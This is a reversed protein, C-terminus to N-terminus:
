AATVVMATALATVVGHGAADTVAVLVAYSGPGVTSPLRGPSVTFTVARGGPQVITRRTAHGIAIADALQGDASLYLTVSLPGTTAVTGANAVSVTVSGGVRAVTTAPLADKTVAVSLSVTAAEVTLDPGVASVAALGAADTARALWEYTGATLGAPLSAVPVTLTTSKGSKLSLRRVVTAVV